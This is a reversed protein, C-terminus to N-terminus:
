KTRQLLQRKADELLVSQEGELQKLAKGLERKRRSTDRSRKQEALAGLEAGLRQQEGMVHELRVRLPNPQHSYPAPYALPKPYPSRTGDNARGLWSQEEEQTEFLLATVVGAAAAAITFAALNPASSRGHYHYTSHEQTRFYAHLHMPSTRSQEAWRVAEMSDDQRRLERGIREM